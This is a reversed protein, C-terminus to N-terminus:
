WFGRDLHSLIYDAGSHKGLIKNKFEEAKDLSYFIRGVEMLRRDEGRRLAENLMMNLKKDAEESRGLRKMVSFYVYPKEDFLERETVGGDDLLERVEELKGAKFMVEVKKVRLSVEADIIASYNEFLVMADEPREKKIYIDLIEGLIESKEKIVDLLRLYHELAMESKDYKKYAEALRREVAIMDEPYLELHKEIIALEFEREKRSSLEWKMFLSVYKSLTKPNDIGYTMWLDQFAGLIKERGANRLIYFDILTELSKPHSYTLVLGELEEQAKDPHDLLNATIEKLISDLKPVIVTNPIIKSFLILYDRLLHTEKTVGEEGIRLSESLELKRDSHLICIVQVNLQSELDEVPENLFHQIDGIIQREIVKDKEEEPFPIRTLAFTVGIPKQGPLREVAQISRLIQRVGEINERNNVILFMVKDSLLSTCLGSMETVGTRSDILLFDPNFEQRIREKLELFFPIGESYEEYFLKHWNIAALKRWYDASLVDGAPILRIEGRSKSPHVLELTFEDLSEPIVNNHTFEYIYDVLGKRIDTTKVLQPFKYHLGPAELDFDMICVNQGFRSLYIAINALALTRGVGGKYSYFTITEM